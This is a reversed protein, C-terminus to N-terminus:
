RGMFFSVARTSHFIGGQRELKFGKVQVGDGMPLASRLALYVGDANAPRAPGKPVILGAPEQALVTGCVVVAMAALRCVSQQFTMAFLKAAFEVGPSIENPLRTGM